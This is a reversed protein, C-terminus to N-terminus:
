HSTNRSVSSWHLSPLALVRGALSEWRKPHPQATLRSLLEQPRSHPLNGLPVGAMVTLAPVAAKSVVKGLLTVVVYLHSSILLLVSFVESPYLM